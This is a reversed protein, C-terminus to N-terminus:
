SGGPRGAEVLRQPDLPQSPVQFGGEDNDSGGSVPPILAVDDGDRLSHDTTVFEEDIACVLSALFPTVAPYERSLGDRLRAVTAGDALELSVQRHGLLESLGAFLRVNVKM